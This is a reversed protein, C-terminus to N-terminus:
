RKVETMRYGYERPRALGCVKVVVGGIGNVVKECRRCVRNEPGLSPFRRTCRLCTRLTTRDM